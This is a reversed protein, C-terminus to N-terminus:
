LPWGDAGVGRRETWGMDQATKKRHCGEPGNCLVQTNEETDDGKGGDAKLAERHDLDFGSPYATLRGCM